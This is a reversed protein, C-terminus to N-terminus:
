EWTRSTSCCSARRRQRTKAAPEAYVNERPPEEPARLAVYYIGPGPSAGGLLEGPAIAVQEWQNERGHVAITAHVGHLGVKKLDVPQEDWWNLDASLDGLKAEPVAAVDAEIKTLNRAWVAYGARTAEVVWAGTEVDLRPTGDGTGFGAM